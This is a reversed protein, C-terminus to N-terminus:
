KIHCRPYLFTEPLEVCVCPLVHSQKSHSESAAQLEQRQSFGHNAAVAPDVAAVSSTWPQLHTTLTRALFM